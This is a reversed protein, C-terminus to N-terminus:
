KKLQPKREHAPDAKQELEQQKEAPRWVDNWCMELEVTMEERFKLKYTVSTTPWRMSTCHDNYVRCLPWITYAKHNTWKRNDCFLTIRRSRCVQTEPTMAWHEDNTLVYFDPYLVTRGSDQSQASKEDSYESDEDGPIASAASLQSSAALGRHLLLVAVSHQSNSSTGTENQPEEDDEDLDKSKHKKAKPPTSPEKEAVTKKGKRTQPGQSESDEQDQPSRSHDSVRNQPDMTASDEDEGQTAQTHQVGSPPVVPQRQQGAHSSSHPPVWELSSSREDRRSRNRQEASPPVGASPSSPNVDSFEEDSVEDSEQTLIPQIHPVQPAQVHTYESVRDLGNKNDRKKHHSIM